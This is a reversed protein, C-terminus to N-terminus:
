LLSIILAGTVSVSIGIVKLLTIRDRYYIFGIMALTAPLLAVIAGSTIFVGEQPTPTSYM